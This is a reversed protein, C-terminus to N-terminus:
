FAQNNNNSIGGATTISLIMM